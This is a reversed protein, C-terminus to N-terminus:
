GSRGGASGVKCGTGESVMAGWGYPWIAGAAPTPRPAIGTGLRRALLLVDVLRGQQVDYATCRTGIDQATEDSVIRYRGGLTDGITLRIEAQSMEEVM